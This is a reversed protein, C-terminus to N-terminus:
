GVLHGLPRLRAERRHRGSSSGPAMRGRVAVRRSGGRGGCIGASRGRPLIWLSDSLRDARPQRARGRGQHPLPRESDHLARVHRAEQPVAAGSRRLERFPQPSSRRRGGPAGTSVLERGGGSRLPLECDGPERRRVRRRGAQLFLPSRGMSGPDRHVLLDGRPRDRLRDLGRLGRAGRLRRRQSPARRKRAASAQERRLPGSRIRLDRRLPRPVRGELQRPSLGVGPGRIRSGSDRPKRDRGAERLHHIRPARPSPLTGRSSPSALGYGCGFDLVSRVSEFDIGRFLVQRLEKQAGKVREVHEPHREPDHFTSLWSFGPVVESFPAFTLFVEREREGAMTAVRDYYRSVTQPAGQAPSAAAAPAPDDFGTGSTSGPTPPFRSTDGTETCAAGISKGGQPMSRGVSRLLCAAEDQGKRMSAVVIGERARSRLCESIPTALVPHPGVELFLDYDEAALRDIAAAFRVPERMTRAWHAGDLDEGTVSDGTVTSVIPIEARRPRIGQLAQTLEGMLPEMQETHFAYDIGLDRCLVGRGELTLLVEKLAEAEGSLVISRPANIAAVSLRGPYAALAGESEEVSIAVAAMRGKGTARQMLRARHFVVEVADELGLASAALAAAVEGVSHGVVADPEIGLSRYLEILGAQIAFIAPQAIETAGLRSRSEEAALEDMLSWDAHARLLADCRELTQRFVPERAALGRGMGIWQSGQGSFVFVTRRTSSYVPTGVPEKSLAGLREALETRTRGVVALRYPHHSRRLSATHCVDELPLEAAAPSTLWEQYARALSKLAEESRASVPLLYTERRPTTSPTRVAPPPAEELIVHANTGSLGFSSIGACRPSESEAWPVKDRPIFFPTESLSIEPNLTELHLHPPITRHQLCLIVKILGAVGAAAELHGINTKASGLACRSGDPRPGGLVHTLAEVEIPDGLPTGTGHAEILSIRSPAVGADDLARRILAQQARGNPSTLHTARGDHNVASGRIVALVPDGGSLADDLRKLVLMGCGEGRGLGDARADFTKSRGDPALVGWKSLFVSTVPSAMVNVGGALAVDCERLRLSQCALHAAVLSSSCATDVALNPGRLDLLHSLRGTAICHAGGLGAHGDFRTIDSVQLWWYDNTTLGVFVGTETAALRDMSQGANELAEWSVELILRHQPDMRVAERPALGFFQADFEDVRDLFGGYRTSMKGPTAPDPDYFRDADWRDKPVESIADVGNSLLDWFAEPSDAGGPFRCAMGVIAIPERPGSRKEENGTM